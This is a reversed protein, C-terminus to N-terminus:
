AIHSTIKFPLQAFLVSQETLRFATRWSFIGVLIGMGVRGIMGGFATGAIYLGM